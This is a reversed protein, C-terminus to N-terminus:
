LDQGRRKAWMELEVAMVCDVMGAYAVGGDCGQVDSDGGEWGWGCRGSWTWDGVVGGLFFVAVREWGHVIELM